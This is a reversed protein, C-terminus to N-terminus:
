IPNQYTLLIETKNIAYYNQLDFGLLTELTM